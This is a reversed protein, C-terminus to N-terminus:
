TPIHLKPTRNYHTKFHTVASHMKLLLTAHDLPKQVAWLVAWKVVIFISHEQQLGLVIFSENFNSFYVREPIISPSFIAIPPDSELEERELGVCTVVLDKEGALFGCISAVEFDAEVTIKKSILIKM